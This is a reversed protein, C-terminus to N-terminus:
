DVIEAALGPLRRRQRRLLDVGVVARHPPGADRRVVRGDDARYLGVGGGRAGSQAAAIVDDRQVTMGRRRVDGEIIQYFRRRAPRYRQGHLAAASLELGRERSRIRVLVLWIEAKSM